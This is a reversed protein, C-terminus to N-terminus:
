FNDAQWIVFDQKPFLVRLLSTDMRDEILNKAHKDFGHFLFHAFELENLAPVTEAIGQTEVQINGNTVQIEASGASTSLSLAGQSMGAKQVLDRWMPQLAHLLEALNIVRGMLGFEPVIEFEGPYFVTWQSPPFQGQLQGDRRMSAAALSTRGIDLTSEEVGLELIEVANQLPRSQIYGVIEDGANDRAVLFDDQDERLWKPLERWYEPTRITTGTRDANTIEYLRMIAPLDNEQFPTIKVSRRISPPLVARILDQEVPVWGYRSYLGPLHTWLLSYAYGERPLESLLAYMLQGAYGHRRADRATIMNGIGAIHLKTHGVRIWRDYIRLHSLLRGNQEVLWSHEPRYSTDNLYFPEFYSRPLEYETLLNLISEIDEPSGRRVTVPVSNGTSMRKGGLKLWLIM